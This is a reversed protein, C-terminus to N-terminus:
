VFYFIIQKNGTLVTNQHAIFIAWIYKRRDGELETQAILPLAPRTPISHQKISACLVVVFCFAPEETHHHDIFDYGLFMFKAANLRKKLM